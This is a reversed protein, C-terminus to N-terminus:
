LSSQGEGRTSIGKWTLYNGGGNYSSFDHERLYIALTRRTVPFRMGNEKVWRVYDDYLVSHLIKTNEDKVVIDRIFQGLTDMNEKLEEGAKIVKEPPQLGNKQWDLCSRVSRALIGDLEGFLKLPLKKDIKNEPVRYGFPIRHLRDWLAHSSEQIKPVHNTVMFLKFAPKFEFERGYLFRARITDSGTLTKVVAADLTAADDAESAIVVRAGVLHAVDDNAGTAVQNKRLFTSFRATQGYGDALAHLVEAFTTKGNRGHGHLLFFSRESTDGTLCYGLVRWLYEVMEKNGEMAELLFNEFLPCTADPDYAIDSLRTTWDDKRGERLKGERLDIVGNACAFLFPDADFNNTRVILRQRSIQDIANLRSLQGADIAWQREKKSEDPPQQAARRLLEASVIETARRLEPEADREWSIGNWHLWMKWQPCWRFDDGVMQVFIGANGIDNRTTINSSDSDPDYLAGAAGLAQNVTMEGYTLKGHREDWKKRFLKSQRFLKDIRPGDARTWYCLIACLSLDARSHDGAHDELNGEWLRTFKPGNAAQVAKDLLDKDKIKQIRALKADKHVEPAPREKKKIDDGFVMLYLEDLKQQRKEVPLRTGYVDGTITLYQGSSYIEIKNRRKFEGPSNAEIIIRVGMGSPSIETYSDMPEIVSLAWDAIVGTDKDRCDDIDIGTYPDTATFVFGLGHLTTDAIFRNVAEQYTGWTRPKDTSAELGTHPNIPMKSFKENERQFLKWCIWQPVKKLEDPINKFASQSVRTYTKPRGAPM